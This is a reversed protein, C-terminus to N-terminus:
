SRAPARLPRASARPVSPQFAALSDTTLPKATSCTCSRGPLGLDRRGPQQQVALMVRDRVEVGISRSRGAARPPRPASAAAAARRQVARQEPQERHGAHPDAFRECSSRSSTSRSAPTSVIRLVLNPLDRCSGSCGDCGHLRQRAVVAVAVLQPRPRSALAEEDGGVAVPRVLAVDSRTNRFSRRWRRADSAVARIVAGSAARDRWVKATRVASRSAGRRSRRALGSATARSRGRDRRVRRCRGTGSPRARAARARRWAGQSWRPLGAM